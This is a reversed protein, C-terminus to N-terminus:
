TPKGFTKDIITKIIQYTKDSLWACWIAFLVKAGVTVAVAEPIPIGPVFVIAIALAYPYVPLFMKFQKSEAWGGVPKGKSDKQTGVNRVVKIIAFICMSFLFVQWAFLIDVIQRM